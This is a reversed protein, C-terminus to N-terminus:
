AEDSLLGVLTLVIVVSSPRPEIAGDSCKKSQSIESKLVFKIFNNDINYFLNKHLLKEAMFLLLTCIAASVVVFSERLECWLEHARSFTKRLNEGGIVRITKTKLSLLVNEM